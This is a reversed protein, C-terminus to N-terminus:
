PAPVVAFGEDLAAAALRADFVAFLPAAEAMRLASALHVADAGRLAHLKALRGADLAVENTLEIPQTASWYYEWEAQAAEEGGAAFRRARGAAAIAACTEPYALLSSSAINCEDWTAVAIERDEENLVLKVLASSDFYVALSM